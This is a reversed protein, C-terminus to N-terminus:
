QIKPWPPIKKEDNHEKVHLFGIVGYYAINYSMPPKPM